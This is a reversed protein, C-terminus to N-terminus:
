PAALVTLTSGRLGNSWSLGEGYAVRGNAISITGAVTGGMSPVKKILAGSDADFIVLNTGSGVFGVGNAVSIRGYVEGDPLALQWAIDGTAADLAFLESALGGNCAFLMHSGSWAGNVFIGDRGDRLGGPCLSRTWVLEGNDRRVAHADGSKQGAAVLPTMVGDLSAQYLVPNAGFDADPKDGDLFSWTDGATRQNKWEISGTELNFAIIADSSDTAPARHNNGTGGFVRNSAIDVALTSWLTAGYAGEMVTYATWVVDGSAKSMAAAYGRFTSRGGVEAGGNAGGILLLDGAIIPSSSGDDGQSNAPRSWKQSGDSADLAVVGGGFANLYLTGDDYAMSGTTRSSANTWLEGGSAADFASVRAGSSAYIVDGVQLPAGYVNTGMDSRWAVELDAANQKTLASEAANFYTSGVDYGMM